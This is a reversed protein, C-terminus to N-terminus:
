MLSRLVFDPVAEIQQMRQTLDAYRLKEHVGTRVLATRLGARRGGVIDHELSDGIVLTRARLMPGFLNCAEEFFAVQPKGVWVITGGLDCYLKALAGCGPHPGSPTLMTLDPNCCLGPISAALPELQRRYDTMSVEPVSSGAFLVFDCPQGPKVRQLAAAELQYDDGEKGVVLVRAGPRFPAPLRGTAINRRAVDGSTLMRDFLDRPVGLAALRESNAEASKASNTLLVIPKDQQRLWRLLDIAGAFPKAGDHLVGFQDILFLDFDRAVTRISEIQRPANGAASMERPSASM